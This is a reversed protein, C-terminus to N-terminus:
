TDSKMAKKYEQIQKRTAIQKISPILELKKSSLKEYIECIVEQADLLCIPRGTKDSIVLDEYNDKWAPNRRRKSPIVSVSWIPEYTMLPKVEYLIDAPYFEYPVGLADGILLGFLGGLIKDQKQNLPPSKKAYNEGNRELAYVFRSFKM